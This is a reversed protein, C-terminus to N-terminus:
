SFVKPARYADRGNDGCHGVVFIVVVLVAVAVVVVALWFWSMRSGPFFLPPANILVSRGSASDDAQNSDTGLERSDARFPM